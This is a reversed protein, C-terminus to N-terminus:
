LAWAVMIGVIAIVIGLHLFTNTEALWGSGPIFQILWNVLVLVLGLLPLFGKHYAFFESLVDIMQNIKRKM